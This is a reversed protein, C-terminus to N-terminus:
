STKRKATKKLSFSSKTKGAALERCHNGLNEPLLTECLRRFRNPYREWEKTQKLETLQCVQRVSDEAQGMGFRGRGLRHGKTDKVIKQRNQMPPLDLMFRTTETPTDKTTGLIVAMAENQGRDLKLLNTQAMTTLGLEYDIVSLVM